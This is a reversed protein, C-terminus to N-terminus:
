WCYIPSLNTKPKKLLQKTLVGLIGYLIGELIQLL